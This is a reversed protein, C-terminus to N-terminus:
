TSTQGWVKLEKKLRARARSIRSRVTGVPIETLRAIEEYSLDGWAYLLLADREKQPLRALANAVHPWAAAADARSTADDANTVRAQSATRQIARLHREETRRHRAILNTAIGYLWPLATARIPVFQARRQFAVMFVELCVDEAVDPGLRRAVFRYVSRYHRDFLAAFADVAGATDSLLEADTPILSSAGVSLEHGILM